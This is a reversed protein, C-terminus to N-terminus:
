LILGFISFSNSCILFSTSSLYSPSKSLYRALLPLHTALINPISLYAVPELISANLSAPTLLPILSENLPIISLKSSKFPSIYKVYWISLFLLIVILSVTIFKWASLTIALCISIGALLPLDNLIPFLSSM